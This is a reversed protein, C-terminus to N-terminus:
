KFYVHNFLFVLIPQKNGMTGDFTEEYTDYIDGSSFEKYSSVNFFDINTLNFVDLYDMSAQGKVNNWFTFALLMGIYGLLIKLTIM